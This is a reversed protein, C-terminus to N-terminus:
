GRGRRRGFMTGYLPHRRTLAVIYCVREHGGRHGCCVERQDEPLKEYFRLAAFAKDIRAQIANGKGEASGAPKGGGEEGALM